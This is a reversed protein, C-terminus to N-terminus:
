IWFILGSNDYNLSKFVNQFALTATFIKFLIFFIPEKEDFSNLIALSLCFISFVVLEYFLKSDTRQDYSFYGLLAQSKETNQIKHWVIIHTVIYYTM